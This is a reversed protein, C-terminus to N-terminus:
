IHGIWRQDVWSEFRFDGEVPVEFRHLPLGLGAFVGRQRRALGALEERVAARLTADVRVLEASGTEPDELRVWGGVDPVADTGLTPLLGACRRGALRLARLGSEFQEPEAFDSIWWTSGLWGRDIPVRALDTPTSEGLATDRLVRLLQRSGAAGELSHVVTGAAGGGCVLRIGDLRALALTGLLAALRRAADFRAGCGMSRSVDLLITIGRRDDEEFVKSFLEGTRAYASWDVIRVEDGSSYRRHGAFAGRPAGVQRNARHEAERRGRISRVRRLAARLLDQFAPPFLETM